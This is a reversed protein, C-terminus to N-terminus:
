QLTLNRYILDQRVTFGLKEWFKNGSENEAFAVLAAKLIGEQRLADMAASVLARGIGKGRLGEKVTAHYIYGRRGDHGCLIVGAIAGDVLAVFCTTPNKAIYKRIGDSSDDISNLGVGPTNVWLGYVRPYDDATMLRIQLANIDQQM